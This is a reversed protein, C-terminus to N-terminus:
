EVKRDQWVCVYVYEHQNAGLSLAGEGWFRSGPPEIEHGARKKVSLEASSSSWSSAMSCLWKGTKEGFPLVQLVPCFGESAAWPHGRPGSGTM